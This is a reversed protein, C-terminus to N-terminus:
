RPPILTIEFLRPWLKGTVVLRDHEADDGNGNTNVTLRKSIVM